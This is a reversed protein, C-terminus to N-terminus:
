EVSGEAVSVPSEIALEGPSVVEDLGLQLRDPESACPSVGNAAKGPGYGLSAQADIRAQRRLLDDM